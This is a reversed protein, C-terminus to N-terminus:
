RNNLGSISATKISGNSYGIALISQDFNLELSTIGPDLSLKSYILPIDEPPNNPFHQQIAIDIGWIIVQGDESASFLTSGDRSFTIAKVQSQHGGNSGGRLVHWVQSDATRELVIDQGSAIAKITADPNFVTTADISNLEEFSLNMMAENTGIEWVYTHGDSRSSVLASDTDPKVVFNAGESFVFHAPIIFPSSAFGWSSVGNEKIVWAGNERFLPEITSSMESLVTFSPMTLEAEGDPPLRSNIEFCTEDLNDGRSSLVLMKSDATFTMMHLPNAFQIVTDQKTEDLKSISGSEAQIGYIFIQGCITALAIFKNDPSFAMDIIQNTNDGSTSPNAPLATATVVPITTTGLSPPIVYTIVDTTRIPTPTFAVLTQEVSKAVATQIVQTADPALAPEPTSTCGLLASTVVFFIFVSIYALKTEGM